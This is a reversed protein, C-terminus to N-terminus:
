CVIMEKTEQNVEKKHLLQITKVQHNLNLQILLTKDRQLYTDALYVLDLDEQQWVKSRFM